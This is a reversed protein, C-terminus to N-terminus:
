CEIKRLLRAMPISTLKVLINYPKREAAQLIAQCEFPVGARPWTPVEGAGHHVLASHVRSGRRYAGHNLLQMMRKSEFNRQTTGLDWCLPPRSQLTQLTEHLIAARPLNV